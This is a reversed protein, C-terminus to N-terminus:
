AVKLRGSALPAFGILGLIPGPLLLWAVRAGLDPVLATALGISFVTILFGIANQFALASGVLEPPCSRASLASFQPSDTVVAVGWVLLLALALPASAASALPYVLCMAASTGLALAAVRASGLRSSLWGGLMCGAGGVGIVAFSWASVSTPDAAGDPALAAAALLPVITWMAYLEWMHGFYGLASARFAPVRFARLVSGWGPRRSAGARRLHPGDGLALVALGSLLALGSATLVVAQWPASGGAARIAHPLATGITLMGVLWGLTEGARGPAWSVVLKMGLPYVGALAFGTLFRYACGEFLGHALLAFGANACAGFLACAAFIRSAPYRDALGSLSFSLTGAIFGLQVASTLTGIDASALGWARALDAAAANASFWLSTGFLQAVVILLIAASGRNGPHVTMPRLRCCGVKAGLGPSEDPQRSANSKALWAGIM